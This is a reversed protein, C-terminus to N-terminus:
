VNNEGEKQNKLLIIQTRLDAFKGINDWEYKFSRDHQRNVLSQLKDIEFELSNIKSLSVIAFIFGFASLFGIIVATITM